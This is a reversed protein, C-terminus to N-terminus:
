WELSRCYRILFYTGSHLSVHETLGILSENVFIKIYGSVVTLIQLARHLQHRIVTHPHHLRSAIGITAGLFKTREDCRGHRRSGMCALVIYLNTIPKGIPLMEADLVSVAGDQRACADLYFLAYRSIADRETHPISFEVPNM